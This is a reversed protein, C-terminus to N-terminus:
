CGRRSRSRCPGARSPTEGVRELGVGQESHAITQDALDRGQHDGGGGAHDDGAGGAFAMQAQVDLVLEHGFGPRELDRSEHQHKKAKVGPRGVKGNMTSPAITPRIPKPIWSAARPSSAASRDLLGLPRGPRLASFPSELASRPIDALDVRQLQLDAVPQDRQHICVLAAVEQAPHGFDALLAGQLKPDNDRRDTDPVVDLELLLSYTILIRPISTARPSIMTPWSCPARDPSPPSRTCPIWVTSCTNPNCASHISSGSPAPRAPRNCRPLPGPPAPWGDSPLYQLAVGVLDQAALVALGQQVIDLLLVGGQDILQHRSTSETPM